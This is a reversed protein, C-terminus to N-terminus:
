EFRVLELTRSGGTMFAHQVPENREVRVLGVGRCYWETTELPLERWESVPDAYVRISARGQVKLCGTYRASATQVPQDVAEIRYTMPVAPYTYRVERPFDFKRALMYATTTAQWQTGVQYPAKLVYRPPADPEAVARSLSKSAIRYIGTKDARLWYEIGDDGRRLWGRVTDGGELEVEHEGLTVLTLTGTQVPSQEIRTTVRYVWRHGADLPFWAGDVSARHCGGAVVACAALLLGAGHRGSM